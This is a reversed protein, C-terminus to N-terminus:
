RKNGGAAGKPVTKAKNKIQGSM